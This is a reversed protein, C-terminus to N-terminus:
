RSNRQTLTIGQDDPMSGVARAVRWACAASLAADAAVRDSLVPVPPDPPPAVVLMETSSAEFQRAGASRTSGKCTNTPNDSRVATHDHHPSGHAVGGETSTVTLFPVGLPCQPKQFLIHVFSLSPGTAMKPAHHPLHPPGM